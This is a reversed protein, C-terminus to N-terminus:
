IKESKTVVSLLKGDKLITEIESNVSAGEVSKVFKGKLRTISFGRKLINEPNLLLNRENLGDLANFKREIFKGVSSKIVIASQKLKYDHLRGMNISASKLRNFNSQLKYNSGAYISEISHRLQQQKLQLDHMRNSLLSQILAVGSISKESLNVSEDSLKDRVLESFDHIYGTITSEFDVLKGILFEAVATPTKLRENAVLDVITDDKEHGIGTLVPLPFQTIHYALWYNNFCNLDTQSGGGRIIVVADFFQHHNYIRDLAKIISEAANEGQMLSPFLKCYFVYGYPNGQLQDMFDEFGAATISSIVAIKQPCVPLDLQKNMEFVGEQLLRNITQQKQMELDGITYTPDIDKIDLSLGYLEHFNVQAFVLVKIGATFLQSTTTEFYPKLMRFTYSWITARSRAIIEESHKSKEILELYCHGSSNIKMESIEAIVWYGQAFSDQIVGQIKKNLEFLSISNNVEAM